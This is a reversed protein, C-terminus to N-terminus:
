NSVVGTKDTFLISVENATRLQNATFTQSRTEPRFISASAQLRVLAPTEFTFKETKSSAVVASQKHSGSDIVDPAFATYM